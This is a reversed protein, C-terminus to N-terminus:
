VMVIGSRPETANVAGGIATAAEDLEPSGTVSVLLLGSTAVTDPEVTVTTPAPVVVM